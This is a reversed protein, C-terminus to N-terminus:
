RHKSAFINLWREKKILLYGVAAGGLHAAEGGANQGNTFVTYVAIALLVWAVTRLRAPIIGYIMVTADPLVQAAAILVGFVGASAGILGAYRETPGVHLAYFVLFSIPGAMGCLLYFALYRWRGLYSEVLPGFFFLALMNFGLHVLNAHLFQFTIFRWIQLHFIATQVTFAGLEYFPEGIAIRRGNFLLHKTTACDLLYCAVNIIVLWATVSLPHIGRFTAHSPHEASGDSRQEMVM